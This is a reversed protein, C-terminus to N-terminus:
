TLPGQTTGLFFLTMAPDHNKATGIVSRPM